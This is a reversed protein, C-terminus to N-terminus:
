SKGRKKIDRILQDIALYPDSTARDTFHNRAKIALEVIERREDARANEADVVAQAVIGGDDAQAKAYGAVLIRETEEEMERMIFTRRCGTLLHVREILPGALEAASMEHDQKDM